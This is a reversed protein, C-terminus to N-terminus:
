KGRTKLERVGLSRSDLNSKGAADKRQRFYEKQSSGLVSNLDRSQTRQACDKGSWGPIAHIGAGVWTVTQNRDGRSHEDCKGIMYWTSQLETLTECLPQSRCILKNLFSPTLLIDWPSVQSVPTLSQARESMSWFKTM